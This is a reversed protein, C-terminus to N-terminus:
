HGDGGMDFHVGSYADTLSFGNGAVDIIVPTPDICCGGSDATAPPCGYEWHCYDAPGVYTGEQIPPPNGSYPHCDQPCNQQTSNCTGNSFNWSLDLAQCTEQNGYEDCTNTATLLHSTGTGTCNQNDDIRNDTSVVSATTTTVHSQTSYSYTPANFIPHCKGPSQFITPPLPAIVMHSPMLLPLRAM